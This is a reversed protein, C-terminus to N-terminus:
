FRRWPQTSMLPWRMGTAAPTSVCGARVRPRASIARGCALWCRSIGSTSTAIPAKRSASVDPVIDLLVTLDPQPLYRQIETLWAADLGQAEGYAVSSALYRDCLLITGRALEM